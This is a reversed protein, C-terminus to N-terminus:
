TAQNPSQAALQDSGPALLITATATYKKQLLLVGTAGAACAVLCVTLFVRWRRRVAQQLSKLSLPTSHEMNFGQPSHSASWTNYFVPAKWTPAASRFTM